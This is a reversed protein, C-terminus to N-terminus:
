SFTQHYKYIKFKSMTVLGCKYKEPNKEVNALEIPPKMTDTYFKSEISNKVHRKADELEQLFVRVLSKDTKQNFNLGYVLCLKDNQPILFLDSDYSLKFSFPAINPTKNLMMNAMKKIASGYFNVKFKSILVSTTRGYIELEKRLVEQEYLIKEKEENTCDKPIGKM